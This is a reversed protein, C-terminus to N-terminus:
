EKHEKIEGDGGTFGPNIINQTQYVHIYYNNYGYRSGLARAIMLRASLRQCNDIVLSIVMDM